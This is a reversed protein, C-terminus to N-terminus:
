EKESKTIWITIKDGYVEIQCHVNIKLCNVITFDTSRQLSIQSKKGSNINEKTYM